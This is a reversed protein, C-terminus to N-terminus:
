EPSQWVHSSGARLAAEVRAIQRKVQGLRRMRTTFEAVREASRAGPEALEALTTARHHRLMTLRAELEAKRAASPALRSRM